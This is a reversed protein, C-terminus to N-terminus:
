VREREFSTLGSVDDIELEFQAPRETSLVNSLELGDMVPMVVDTLVLAFPTERQRILRLAERGDGAEAVEFGLGRVMRCAMRRVTLEDEVVLITPPRPPPPVLAETM